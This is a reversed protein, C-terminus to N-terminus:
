PVIAGKEIRASTVPFVFNSGDGLRVQLPEQAPDFNLKHNVNRLFGKLESTLGFDSIMHNRRSLLKELTLRAEAANMNSAALAQLIQEDSIQSLKRIMWQGDNITMKEFSTNPQITILGDIVIQEPQTNADNSNNQVRTVQWTMDNIKSGTKVIGGSKGLGTGVDILYHKLSFGKQTKKEKELILRTNEWRMDFNGVWAALMQVGRIERRYPHDLSDYDWSGVEIMKDKVTITGNQFIIDSIQDEFAPRYNAAILESKAMQSNQLLQTKFQSASLVTGSKLNVQVIYDFPDHYRSRDFEYIKQPGLKLNFNQFKHLNFETLIKRDYRVRPASASDIPVVNYGIAWYMRTNFPGSLSENGFKVKYSNTGCSIQFGAHVGWGTKAKEYDCVQGAISSKANRDFGNYFDVNELSKSKWFTSPAPDLKSDRAPDFDPKPSQVALSKAATFPLAFLQYDIKWTNKFQHSIADALELLSAEASTVSSDIIGDKSKQTEKQLTEVTKIMATLGSRIGKASFNLELQPAQKGTQKEASDADKQLEAFTKLSELEQKLFLLDESTSFTYNQKAIESGLVRYFQFYKPAQYGAVFQVQETPQNAPDRDASKQFHSCSITSILTSLSLTMLIIFSPTQKTLRM